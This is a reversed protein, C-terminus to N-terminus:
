WDWFKICKEKWRPARCITLACARYNPLKSKSLIFAALAQMDTWRYSMYTISIYFRHYSNKMYTCMKARFISIWWYITSGCHIGYSRVILYVYNEICNMGYCNGIRRLSDIMKSGIFKKNRKRYLRGASRVKSSSSVFPVAACASYETM